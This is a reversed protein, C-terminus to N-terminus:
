IIHPQHYSADEMKDWDVQGDLYDQVFASIIPPRHRTKIPRYNASNIKEIKALRDPHWLFNEDLHENLDLLAYDEEYKCEPGAYNVGDAGIQILFYAGHLMEFELPYGQYREYPVQVNGNQSHKRKLVEIAALVGTQDEQLPHRHEWEICFPHFYLWHIGSSLAMKGVPEIRSVWESKTLMGAALQLGSGEDDARKRLNEINHLTQRFYESEGEQWDYLSVRVSTVHELLADQIETKHLLPGM